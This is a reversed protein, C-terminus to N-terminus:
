SRKGRKRTTRCVAKKWRIEASGSIERSRGNTQRRFVAGMADQQCGCGSRRDSFCFVAFIRLTKRGKQKRELRRLAKKSKEPLRM